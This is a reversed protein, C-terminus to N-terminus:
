VTVSKHRLTTGPLLRLHPHDHPPPVPLPPHLHLLRRPGVGAPIGHVDAARAAQDALSINSQPIPAASNSNRNLNQGVDSGVFFPQQKHLVM